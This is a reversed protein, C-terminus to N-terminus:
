TSPTSSSFSANYANKSFLLVILVAMAGIIGRGRFRRCPSRRRRAPPRNRHGGRPAAGDLDDARHRHARFRSGPSARRAARCSSSPPWCRGWRAAQRDRRGPLHGAGPRAARRLGHAGHADSRPPLDLLGAGRLRRRGAPASLERCLRPGRPGGPHFCMGVVMSFPVPHRDTYYGVAPQFLSATVQFTLTILGIQGFDLRYAEKIIPYVAPILSQIMDNLLHTASLAILVPMMTKHSLSTTGTATVANGGSGCGPPVKSRETVFVTHAGDPFTRCPRNAAPSRHARTLRAPAPRRGAIKLRGNSRRWRGAANGSLGADHHRCGRRERGQLARRGPLRGPHHLRQRQRRLPLLRRAQAPDLAPALGIAEWKESLNNRDNPAGNHLGSAPSSAQTTSTSSPRAAHGAHRREALVGKPAVPKAGDYDTGAINTAANLDLVDIRRYLSTTGKLGYGNGSDRSILLFRGPGIWLAESQAAVKTKGDDQFTPLPVVVESLLKLQDATRHRRLHSRAHPPPHRRQRRRGPARREAAGVTLRGDPSLAMGEFGQNNQRGTEPDKPSPVPAGAGPNNSSFNVEQKRMPLLAKPPLTASLMRGAPSFHYIAPGYEDSILFSGDALLVVAEPDLSVRGQATAPLTPFTDKAPRLAVPDLGSM